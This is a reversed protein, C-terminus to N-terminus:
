ELIIVVKLFEDITGFPLFQLITSVTSIRIVREWKLQATTPATSPLLLGLLTLEMDALQFPVVGTYKFLTDIFGLQRVL